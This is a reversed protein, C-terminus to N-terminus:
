ENEDFNNISKNKQEDFDIKLQLEDSNDSSNKQEGVNDDEMLIKKKMKEFEDIEVSSKENDEFPSSTKILYNFLEEEIFKRYSLSIDDKNDNLFDKKKKHLENGTRFLNSFYVKIIHTDTGNVSYFEKELISDSDNELFDNGHKKCLSVNGIDSLDLLESFNNKQTTDDLVSPENVYTQKYNKSYGLNNSDRTKITGNEDGVFLRIVPYIPLNIKKLFSLDQGLIKKVENYDVANIKLSDKVEIENLDIVEESMISAKLKETAENIFYTIWNNLHNNLTFHLPNRYLIVIKTLNSIQISFINMILPLFTYDLNKVAESLYKKYEEVFLKLSDSNVFNKKEYVELVLLSNHTTFVNQEIKSKYPSIRKIFINFFKKNFAPYLSKTIDDIKLHFFPMIELFNESYLSEIQFDIDTNKIGYKSKFEQFLDKEELSLFVDDNIFKLSTKLKKSDIVSLRSIRSVREINNIFKQKNPNNANSSVKRLCKKKFFNIDDSMKHYLSEYIDHNKNYYLYLLKYIIYYDCLNTFDIEKKVSFTPFDSLNRDQLYIHPNDIKFLKTSSNNIIEDKEYLYSIDEIKKSFNKNLDRDIDLIKDKETSDYHYKYDNFEETIQKHKLNINKKRLCFLVILLSSYEFNNNEKENINEDITIYLVGGLLIYFYVFIYFVMLSIINFIKLLIFLLIPLNIVAEIIFQYNIINVINNIRNFYTNYVKQLFLNSNYYNINYLISNNKNTFYLFLIFGFIIILYYYKILFLFFNNINFFGLIRSTNTDIYSLLFIFSLFIHLANFLIFYKLYKYKNFIDQIKINKLFIEILESEKENIDFIQKIKRSTIFVTILDLILNTMISYIILILLINIIISLGHSSIIEPNNIRERQYILLIFIYFVIFLIIFSNIIIYNIWFLSLNKKHYNKM